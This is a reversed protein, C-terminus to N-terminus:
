AHSFLSLLRRAGIAAPAFTPVGSLAPNSPAFVHNVLVGSAFGTLQQAM